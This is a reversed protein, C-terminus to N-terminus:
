NLRRVYNSIRDKQLNEANSSPAHSSSVLVSSCAFSSLVRSAWEISQWTSNRSPFCPFRSYYAQYQLQPDSWSLGRLEAECAFGQADLDLSELGIDLRVIEAAGVETSASSQVASSNLIM